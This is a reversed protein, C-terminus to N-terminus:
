SELNKVRAELAELSSIAEKLAATLLPILRSHDISQMEKGDKEGVVAEPVVEQAEHALFGDVENKDIDSIFNFRKPKLKKIRVIPDPMDIVNEKLRYDSSSSYNVANYATQIIGGALDNGQSRFVAFYVNNANWTNRLVMGNETQGYFDLCLKGNNNQSTRNILLAGTSCQLTMKPSSNNGFIVSNTTGTWLYLDQGTSYIGDYLMRCHRTNATHTVKVGGDFVGLGNADISATVTTGNGAYNLFTNETGSKGGAGNVIVRQNGQLVSAFTASGDANISSTASGNLQGVYCASTGLTRSVAINDATTIGGAFTAAGAGTISSTPTITGQSYGAWVSIASNGTTVAVTGQAGYLKCGVNVGNNPDGGSTVDGAFTAAGTTGDLGITDVSSSNLVRLLGHGSSTVARIKSNACLLNGAFTAAGTDLISSTINNSGGGGTSDYSLWRYSDPATGYAQHVAGNIRNNAELTIGGGAFTAAGTNAFLKVKPSSFSGTSDLEIHGASKVNTTIQGADADFQFVNSGSTNTFRIGSWNFRGFRADTPHNSDFDEATVKGGFTADGLTHFDGNPKIQWWTTGPNASSGGSLCYADTGPKNAIYTYVGDTSNKFAAHGTGFIQATPTGAINRVTYVGYNAETEGTPVRLSAYPGTYGGSYVVGSGLVSFTRTGDTKDIYIQDASDGDFPRIGVKYGSGFTATGAATIAVNKTSSGQIYGSLITSTGSAQTAHIGGTPYLSVGAATGSLASGGVTTTSAFTASGDYRVRAVTTGNYNAVFADAASATISSPCNGLFQGRVTSSGSTITNGFTASGNAKVDVNKTSNLYGELVTSSGNTRDTSFYLGNVVSGFTAGGAATINGNNQLLIADQTANSANRVRFNGGDQVRLDGSFTGQGSFTASGNANIRSTATSTGQLFGMYVASTGSGSARAAQIVGSQLMKAGVASGDNPDGGCQVLTDFTVGGGTALKSIPLVFSSHLNAPVIVNDDIGSGSIKSLGM